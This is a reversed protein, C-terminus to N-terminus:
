NQWWYLFLPPYYLLEIHMPNYKSNTNEREGEGGRRRGKKENMGEGSEGGGVGGGWWRGEERQM